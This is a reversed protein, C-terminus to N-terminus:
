LNFRKCVFLCGNIIRFWKLWRNVFIFVEVNIIISKNIDNNFNGGNIFNKGFNKKKYM